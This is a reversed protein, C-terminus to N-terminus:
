RNHLRRTTCSNRKTEAVSFRTSGKLRRKWFSKDTNLRALAGELRAANRLKRFGEEPCHAHRACRETRCDFRKHAGDAEGLHKKEGVPKCELLKLAYELANERARGVRDCSDRYESLLLVAFCKRSM